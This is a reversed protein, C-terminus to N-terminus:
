DAAHCSLVTINRTQTAIYKKKGNREYYELIFTYKEFIRSELSLKCKSLKM